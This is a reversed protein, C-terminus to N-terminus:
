YTEKHAFICGMLGGILFISSVWLGIKLSAPRYFFEVRHKGESVKVARFAYNARLVKSEKGDVYAKWGPYYCDSLVLFGDAPNDVNVQIYNPEYRAINVRSAVITQKSEPLNLTTGELIVAESFNFNNKIEKLIEEKDEILRIKHVLFARELADENMFINHIKDQYVLKYGGALYRDAPTVVYKINM